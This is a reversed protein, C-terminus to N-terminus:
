GLCNRDLDFASSLLPLGSVTKHKSAALITLLSSAILLPMGVAHREGSSLSAPAVAAALGVTATPGPPSAACPGIAACVAM